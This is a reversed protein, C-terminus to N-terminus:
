IPLNIRSILTAELYPEQHERMLLSGVEDGRTVLRKAKVPPETPRERQLLKRHNHNLM